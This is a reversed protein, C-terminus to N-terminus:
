GKARLMRSRGPRVIRRVGNIDARASRAVKAPKLSFSLALLQLSSGQRGLSKEDVGVVREPFVVDVELPGDSAEDRKQIMVLERRFPHTLHEVVDLAVANQLVTVPQVTERMREDISKLAQANHRDRSLRMGLNMAKSVGDCIMRELNQGFDGFGELVQLFPMM